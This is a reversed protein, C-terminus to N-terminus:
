RRRVMVRLARADGPGIRAGGLYRQTIRMRTARRPRALVLTQRYRCSRAVKATRRVARHGPRKLTLRLRGACAPGRFRGRVLLRMRAGRHAVRVRSRVWSPQLATLPWQAAAARVTWWAAKRAFPEGKRGQGRLIGESDFERGGGDRLTVFVQDAGALALTPLSEALYAAQAAEGGRYAPDSQWRTSGPYGHETVWMPTARGWQRLFRV